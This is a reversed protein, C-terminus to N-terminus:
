VAALRRTMMRHYREDFGISEYLERARTNRPSVELAFTVADFPRAEAIFEFFSRAIGQGRFDKEVFLEDVLVVMGGFENSWYPILLAYGAMVEDRMILQIHGRSPEALLRDVTKPFHAHDVHLDPADEAYLGGMMRVVQDAHRRDTMTSFSVTM